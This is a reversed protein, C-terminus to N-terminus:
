PLELVRLYLDLTGRREAERLQLLGGDARREETSAGGVRIWEGLRGTVRTQVGAIEATGRSDAAGRDFSGIELSVREGNLRPLVSFGSSRREYALSRRASVGGPGAYTERHGAPHESGIAIFARSGELVRVEQSVERDESLRGAHAEVRSGGGPTRPGTRIRVGDTVKEDIAAGVGAHAAQTESAQRVQILLSRPPTDLAELARRIDELREPSARVFLSAGRGTVLGDPGALPALLPILEEAPRSTLDIIELPHEARAAAVSLLWLLLALLAPASGTSRM